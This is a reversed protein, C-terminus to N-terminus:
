EVRLADSPDLRVARRAPAVGAALAAAALVITAAGFALPDAPSVGFLWTGVLRAVVYALPLGVALGAAVAVLGDGLVLRVVDRSTAGVAVRIALERRRGALAFAAVGYLGVAALGLTFLGLASGLAAAMRFPFLMVGLVDSMTGSDFVAVESSIAEVDERLWAVARAPDGDVRAVVRLLGTYGSALPRYAFPLPAEGLSQVKVDAAVGVVELWPAAEGGLRLPRGIPDSDPWLRRAAEASVIVVPAGPLADAATFARGRLIAIGLAEFYGAGVHGMQGSM